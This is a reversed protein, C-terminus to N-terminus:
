SGPHCRDDRCQCYRMRILLGVSLAAGSVMAALTKLGVPGPLVLALILAIAMIGILYELQCCRRKTWVPDGTGDPPHGLPSPHITDPDGGLGRVKDTQHTLYRGFVPEWPDNAPISTAIHRFVALRSQELPLLEAATSVPIVWECSGLITQQMGAIQRVTLRFINKKRVNDPLEISFLAAVTAHRSPPLPLYTVRQTTVELSVTHADVAAIIPPGPRRGHLEVIEAAEIGPLYLTARTGAPLNGWEIMLEDARRHYLQARRGHTFTAGGGVVEFEKIGKLPVGIGMGASPKIEFTHVVTHTAPGGPNDSGVIALNRQSLSDNSAPSDGDQLWNTGFDVEAVLCCHAGRLLTIINQMGSSFPGTANPPNLPFRAQTQNIDLWCGFFAFREDSGPAVAALNRRNAQDRQALLSQVATNVRAEAYFPITTTQGGEVGLVPIRDGFANVMTRYTSNGRFEVGTALARFLRFFVGVGNAPLSRGRYHVKALAFNYVRDSSGPFLESLYIPSQDQAPNITAFETVGNAPNANFDTLVNNIFTLAEGPSNGVNHGFRPENQRLHFVRVDTSLWHPDGDLMFPRPQHTLRVPAHCSYGNKAANILVQQDEIAVGVADHFAQGNAFRISYKFAVRQPIGLDDELLMARPLASMSPVATGGVAKRFGITPAWADLDAQSPMATTIGLEDPRFGDMIVYFSDDFDTNGGPALEDHAFHSRDTVISCQRRSLHVMRARECPREQDDVVWLMYYGPPAVNADGTVGASLTFAKTGTDYATVVFDLAVYRQESDTHHTIAGLRMLAVRLVPTDSTGAINITTSYALTDAPGHESTVANITPRTGKFFYPPRYFEFTKQNLAALGAEPRSPDVGGMTLVQGDPLLLSASHYTRRENMAAVPTFEDLVPDYMEAINSPVQGSHWKYTNHGGHVLVKADPLLVANVNMRPHDMNRLSRWLMPASQTDLIAASHLDTDAHHGALDSRHDSWWGGGILLLKGDQAPPLLISMGEERNKVAPAMAEDTWNATNAGTKRFTFTNIPANQEMGYRWTTGTLVVKGGAVLHLGPYSALHKDGGSLVQPMYGPGQIPLPFHEVRAALHMGSDDIGSFALVSGDALTVLTPYWRGISMEGIKTWNNSGPDYICIDRIGHADNPHAQSGGVTMVRGDELNTQHCCFIDVGAPFNRRLPTAMTPDALPDWEYSEAAYHAGEVHGSWVLVNGTHMLIAHLIFLRRGDSTTVADQIGMWQGHTDSM